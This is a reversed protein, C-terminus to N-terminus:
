ALTVYAPQTPVCVGGPKGTWLKSLPICQLFAFIILSTSYALVLAGILSAIVVLRKSPFMRHYLYLISLKTFVCTLSYVVVGDVYIQFCNKYTGLM